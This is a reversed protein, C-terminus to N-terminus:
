EAKSLQFNCDNVFFTLKEEDYSPGSWSIHHEQVATSYPMNEMDTSSATIKCSIIESFGGAGITFMGNNDTYESLTLIPLPYIVNEPFAQLTIKIGQLPSNSTIDSVAGSIIVTHNGDVAEDKNNLLALSCSALAAAASLSIIIKKITNRM